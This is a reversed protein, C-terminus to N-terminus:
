KYYARDKYQLYIYELNKRSEPSIEDKLLTNMETIQLNVDSYPNFHISWGEGTELILTDSIFAEKVGIQFNDKLNQQINLVTEIIKKDIISQGLYLDGEIPLMRLILTEQSVDDAKQFIVGNNDISYCNDGCLVAIQQREKITINILDPLKKLVQVSEVVPFEKLISKSIKSKRVILISKSYASFSGISVIKKNINSYVLSEVDQSNAKDNGSINIKSVQFWSFLIFYSLVFIILLVLVVWFAPKKFFPKKPKLKKFKPKIHKKRYSM